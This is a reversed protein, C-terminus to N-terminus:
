HCVMVLCTPNCEWMLGTCCIEICNYSIFNLESNEDDDTEPVIDGWLLDEIKIM